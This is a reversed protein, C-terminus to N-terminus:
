RPVEGYQSTPTQLINNKVAVQIGLCDVDRGARIVGHYVTIKYRGLKYAIAGYATHSRKRGSGTPMVLESVDLIHRHVLPFKLRYPDRKDRELSQV